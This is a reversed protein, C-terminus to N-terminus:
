SADTAAELYYGLLRIGTATAALADPRSGGQAILGHLQLTGVIGEYAEALQPRAILIEGARWDPVPGPGAMQVDEKRRSECSTTVGTAPDEIQNVPAWNALLELLVVHPRELDAMAALALQVMDIKDEGEAILGEALVRGLARVKAPWATKAAGEAATATLLRSRPFRGMRQGLEGPELGATAGATAAMEAINARQDRRWEDRVNAVLVALYPAM